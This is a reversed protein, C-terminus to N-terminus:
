HTKYPRIAEQNGSGPPPTIAVFLNQIKGDPFVYTKNMNSVKITYESGDPLTGKPHSDTDYYYTYNTATVDIGYIGDEDDCEFNFAYGQNQELTCYQVDMDEHNANKFIYLEVLMKEDFTNIVTMKFKNEEVSFNETCGCLGVCLLMLTIIILFFEKKM